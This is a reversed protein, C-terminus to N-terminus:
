GDVAGFLFVSHSSATTLFLTSDHQAWTTLDKYRGLIKAAEGTASSAPAPAFDASGDFADSCELLVCGFRDAFVVGTLQGDSVFVMNDRLILRPPHMFEGGFGKFGGVAIGPSPEGKAWPNKLDPGFTMDGFIASIIEPKPRREFDLQQRLHAMGCRWAAFRGAVLLEELDVVLVVIKQMMVIWARAAATSHRLIKKLAATLSRLLRAPNAATLKPNLLLLLRCAQHLEFDSGAAGSTLFDITDRFLVDFVKRSRTKDREHVAAFIPEVVAKFWVPVAAPDFRKSIAAAQRLAQNLSNANERLLEILPKCVIKEM